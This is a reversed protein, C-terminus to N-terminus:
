HMKRNVVLDDFSTAADAKTWLGVGGAGPFTRDTAKLLAKGDLACEIKDGDQEIRITHWQAPDAKVRASDLQVRRRDKVYYLRFNDELPNWRAIYYNDKDRVRWIPGGGQDESGTGAKVKVEIAGNEFRVQDTWCLNFTGGSGERTDTLALVNPKSPATADARVVWTAVPGRQRTGEVKFGEPIGGSAVEDFRWLAHAAEKSGKGARAQADLAAKLGHALDEVAGVGWFHLFFVRPEEHVMHNHVATIEIDHTALAQIVPAVEHSLMTFDGAVAAREPTGQFAMWTNFGSFTSVPVGMDRLDVDPRGIVIKYVGASSKGSHGVMRAVADGDITSAVSRERRTLGKARRLDAVENLVTRVGHALALPAGMGGVHMFMLKPTDRLFHNHIATIQLGAPIMVKQVSRFEDELLVIDGMIMAGARRPMFVVWSTTGMPPVIAFGDSKIDLDNQPVAIKYEGDLLTGQIGTIQVIEEVPLSPAFSLGIVGTAKDMDGTRDHTSVAMRYTRAPDFPTDDPHGTDLRRELELTWWGNAWVGKARVDAASGSPTGPLYQPVRDGQYDKPAPQKTELTDGVDEPRAIWITKGNRATYAKAKGPPKELTYRHSKDMAHGQPNTRTAKWHWVDWTAPEGSLMDGSFIGSHEFAVALMDEREPGEEYGKKAARWVWPKHFVDDKTDDQWRVLLYIRTATHVSKIVVPTTSAGPEPWVVRAMVRLPRARDWAADTAQGDVSPAQAVSFSELRWKPEDPHQAGASHSGLLGAAVLLVVLPQPSTMAWIM